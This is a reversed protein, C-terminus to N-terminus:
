REASPLGAEGSCLFVRLREGGLPASWPSSVGLAEVVSLLNEHSAMFRADHLAPQLLHLLLGGGETICLGIDGRLHL